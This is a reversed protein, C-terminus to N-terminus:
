LLAVREDVLHVALHLLELVIHLQYFILDLSDIGFVFFLIPYSKGVSLYPGKAQWAFLNATLPGKKQQDLKYFCGYQRTM